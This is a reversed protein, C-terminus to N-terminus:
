LVRAYSILDGNGVKRCIYRTSSTRILRQAHERVRAKKVLLSAWGNPRGRVCGVAVVLGVLLCTLQM